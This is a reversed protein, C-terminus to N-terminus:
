INLIESLLIFPKLKNVRPELSINLRVLRERKVWPNTDTSNKEPYLKIQSVSIFYNDKKKTEWPLVFLKGQEHKSICHTTGDVEYPSNIWNFKANAM